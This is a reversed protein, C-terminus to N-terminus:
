YRETIKVTNDVSAVINMPSIYRVVYQYNRAYSSLFAEIARARAGADDENKSASVVQVVNTKGETIRNAILLLREKQAESLTTVGEDFRFTVSRTQRGPTAERTTKNRVPNSLAGSSYAPVKRNATLEKANVRNLGAFFTLCLAALIMKKM